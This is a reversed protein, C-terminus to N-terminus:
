RSQSLDDHFASIFFRYSRARALKGMAAATDVMGGRHTIPLGVVLDFVRVDECHKADGWLGPHVYPIVGPKYRRKADRIKSLTSSDAM